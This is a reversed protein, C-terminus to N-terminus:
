KASTDRNSVEAKKKENKEIEWLFMYKMFVYFAHTVSVEFGVLGDLFGRKIFFEKVFAYTPNVVLHWLSFNKGFRHYSEAGVKAYKVLRSFQDYLDKYSYHYLYGRKIKKTKGDIILKDHPDYGGWHPNASRKVLRLKWDPQWVHNLFKGLHYTKRNVYYGDADPNKIRKIIEEKLEPSVEEDADLSLIWPQTCKQLASNKQAMHGKWDEEFVKAGYEKAIERTRDTSHSDVVIIESAIDKISELARPLNEEENFTIISVSLPLKESM